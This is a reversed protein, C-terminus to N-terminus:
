KKKRRNNCQNLAIMLESNIRHIVANPSRLSHGWIRLVRWGARRLLRNTNRDRVANRSIKREWYERNDDPMRCHWRCGHWFCGDVFIALRARHFTFDPHGPLPQHRRWGTIRAARLISVLKVETEKNGRSRIAAMVESRKRKTLTDAVPAVYCAQAAHYASFLSPRSYGAKPPHMRANGDFLQPQRAESLV